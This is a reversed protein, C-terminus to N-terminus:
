TLINKTKLYKVFKLVPVHLSLSLSNEFYILQLILTFRRTSISVATFEEDPLRLM